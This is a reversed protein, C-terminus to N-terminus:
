WAGRNTPRVTAAISLTKPPNPRVTCRLDAPRADSVAASHVRRLCWGVVVLLRAHRWGTGFLFVATPRHLERM